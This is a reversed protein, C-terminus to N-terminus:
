ILKAVKLNIEVARQVDNLYPCRQSIRNIGCKAEQSYDNENITWILELESNDHLPIKM